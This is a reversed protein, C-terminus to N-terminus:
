TSTAAETNKDADTVTVTIVSGSGSPGTTYWDADLAVTGTADAGSPAALAAIAGVLGLLLTGVVFLTLTSIRKNM